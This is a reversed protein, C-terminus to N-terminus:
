YNTQMDILGKEKARHEAWRFFLVSLIVVGVSFAGLVGVLELNSLQSLIQSSGSGLLARRMTEIWYTLPLIYSIAQLLGPLVDIPFVAGCLMYLAGAVAEGTFQGHRATILAVGGLFIGLFALSLLGLVLGTVLLLWDISAIDIPLNFLLAGFALTILVSVTAILTKAGGRGLLYFYINLPATYMYKLMGYRERDDVVAFSVGMLVMAVYIYFANGVFIMPFLPNSLGGKAVVMYMFVLILAGAIPKIVSYIAFLFPDTWNSEIQWGLWAAMRLSRLNEVARQNTAM